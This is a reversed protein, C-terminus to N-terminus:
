VGVTGQEPSHAQRAKKKFNFISDVPNKKEKSLDVTSIDSTNGNQCRAPHILIERERERERGV